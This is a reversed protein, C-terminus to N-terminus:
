ELNEIIQKASFYIEDEQPEMNIVKTLFGKSKATDGKEKYAIGIGFLSGKVRVSKPFKKIFNTFGAIADDLKNMKLLCQNMEYEVKDHLDELEEYNDMKKIEKLKRLAEEYKENSILNVAQYYIEDAQNTEEDDINDLSDDDLDFSTDDVLDDVLEMGVDALESESPETANENEILLEFKIEPFGKAIKRRAFSIREKAQKVLIGSPYHHLYKHYAYEAHDFRKESLYYDGLKFLEISPQIEFGGHKSLITTVRKGLKRLQGSFVKLMKLTMNINKASLQEFEELKLILVLVDNLCQATEERLFHGLVPKLGFFEGPNLDQTEEQNTEPSFFTLRIKGSKIIYIEEAKDGEFYVISGSKYRKEIPM